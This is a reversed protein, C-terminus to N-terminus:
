QFSLTTITKSLGGLFSHANGVTQEFKKFNSPSMEKQASKLIDGLNDSAKDVFGQFIGKAGDWTEEDKGGTAHSNSFPDVLSEKTAFPDIMNQSAAIEQGQRRAESDKFPDPLTVSKKSDRGSRSSTRTTQPASRSPQGNDLRYAEAAIRDAEEKQAA